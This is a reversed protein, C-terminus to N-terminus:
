FIKMVLSFVVMMEGSVTTLKKFDFNEVSKIGKKNIRGFKTEDTIKTWLTAGHSLVWSWSAGSWPDCEITFWGTLENKLHWHAM